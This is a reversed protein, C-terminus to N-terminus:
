TRMKNEDPCAPLALTSPLHRAFVIQPHPQEPQPRAAQSRDNGTWGRTWPPFDRAAHAGFQHRVSRGRGRRGWRPPRRGPAGPEDNKVKPSLRPPTARRRHGPGWLAKQLTVSSADNRAAMLEVAYEYEEPLPSYRWAFVPDRRGGMSGARLLTISEERRLTTWAGRDQCTGQHSKRRVSESSSLSRM